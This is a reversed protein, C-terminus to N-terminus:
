AFRAGRRWAAGGVVLLVLGAAVFALLGLGTFPLVGAVVRAAATRVSVAAKPKHARGAGAVGAKSTSKVVQTRVAPHQPSVSALARTVGASAIAGQAPTAAPPSLVGAGAVPLLEGLDGLAPTTTTLTPGVQPGSSQAAGLSGGASNGGGAQLTGTSSSASNGSGPIGVSGGLSASNGGAGATAAPSMTAGSLQAAGTSGSADNGGGVQVAGTSRSASSGGAGIALPAHADLTTSGESARAGPHLAAPSSQVAGTSGSADNGGGTGSATSGSPASATVGGASSGVSLTPDATIPGVQVVGTSDTANNDACAIAPAIAALACTALLSALYRM